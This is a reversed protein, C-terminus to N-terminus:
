VEKAEEVLEFTMLTTVSLTDNPALMTLAGPEHNALRRLGQPAHNQPEIAIAGIGPNAAVIHLDPATANVTARIGIAPWLLQVPPHTLRSWTADTGKAMERMERLDLSGSVPVPQAPSNTNSDYVVAGHIAIRVPDLFWPHLGLGAPMPEDAVNTLRQEIRLEDDAVSVALSCEYPWPWGDGGAKIAFAGDAIQRWRAVYVQGHIASGDDFNASLDVVRDGVKQPGPAVRGCWPAMVYGGWFFPDALHARTDDPTRLLDHGYVRLRHLRAGMSPLVSLEIHASAYVLEESVPM